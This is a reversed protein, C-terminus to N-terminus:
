RMHTDAHEAPRPLPTEDPSQYSELIIVTSGCVSGWVTEFDSIRVAVFGM